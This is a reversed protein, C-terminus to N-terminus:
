LAWAEVAPIVWNTSLHAAPNKSSFSSLTNPLTKSFGSLGNTTYTFAGGTLSPATSDADGLNFSKVWGDNDPGQYAVLYYNGTRHVMSPNIGLTDFNLTDVKANLTGAASITHTALGGAGTADNGADGYGRSFKDESLFFKSLM